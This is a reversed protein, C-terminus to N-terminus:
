ADLCLRISTDKKIVCVLPNSFQNNSNEIIDNDIMKQIEKEVAEKKSHLIAYSKNIFRDVEMVNLKAKYGLMKGPKESFFNKIIM